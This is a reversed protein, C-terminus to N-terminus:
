DGSLTDAVVRKWHNQIVAWDCNKRVWKEAADGEKKILDRNYYYKNLVETLHDVDVLARRVAATDMKQWHLDKVKVLSGRPGPKGETTLERSTTYDTGLAPVGCAFGEIFNLGFGEGASTMLNLDWMNYTEAVQERPMGVPRPQIMKNIIGYQQAFYQIPWGFEDNWDMQYHLLADPKDKAFKAFAIMSRVPQKRPQNRNLNGVIFKDKFQKPKEKNKFTNTDVGHWIYPVDLKFYQKFINQGYKSMAIVKDAMRYIHEWQPMPPDGDQPCQKTACFKKNRGAFIIHNHEATICYVKGEYPVKDIHNETIGPNTKRSITIRYVDNLNNDSKNRYETYVSTKYGLLFCLHIFDNMLIKSTTSYSGICNERKDWHGDGDMLSEFLSDMDSYRLFEKPIYKNKALNQETSNHFLKNFLDYYFKGNFSISSKREHFKINMRNLLSKIKERNYENCQSICVRHSTYDNKSNKIKQTHKDLCGESIYWGTLSLFDRWKVRLPIQEGNKHNSKGYADSFTTAVRQTHINKEKNEWFYTKNSHNYKWEVEPIDEEAIKEDNEMPIRIIYDGDFFKYFEFWERIKGNFSKYKPFKRITKSKTNYLEDATITKGDIYLEHEPTVDFDIGKHKITILEGDSEREITDIVKTVETEGSKPNLTYVDDGIKFDKINKVGNPTIVETDPTFCYAVWKTERPFKEKFKAIEGQLKMKVAEESVFKRSPLDIIPMNISNPCMIQPIHQVMQIDNVTLLIEPELNDLLWPLAKNGFDFRNNSRPWNRHELVRRKEGCLDLDIKRDQNTQLGLIHVDYDKALSWSVGALDNAFGTPGMVSDGVLLIKEKM